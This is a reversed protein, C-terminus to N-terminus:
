VFIATLALSMSAVVTLIFRMSLWQVLGLKPYTRYDILFCLCLTATLLLLGNSSGILLSMWGLLSPAIGWLLHLRDPAVQQMVFGWHIAGLFSVITAGYALLSLFAIEKHPSSPLLLLFASLAMFPILGAYGLFKATPSPTTM